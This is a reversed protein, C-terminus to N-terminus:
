NLAQLREVISGVLKDYREELIEEYAERRVCDRVRDLSPIGGLIGSFNDIQDLYSDIPSDSIARNAEDSIYILNLSSNLVHSRNSRINSTSEGINTFSGLPIIHHKHLKLNGDSVDWANLSRYSGAVPVFDPIGKSLIFQLLSSQVSKPESETVDDKRTLIAKTAYGDYNLINARLAIYVDNRSIDDCSIFEKVRVRIDDICRDNQSKSYEGSFLSLWYWQELRDVKRDDNWCDDQSFFFAIAVVILNYSVNRAEVIGCRLQLFALARIISTVALEYNESIDDTSLQLVKERKIMSVSPEQGYKKVYVILSLVNIFWEKLQSSPENDVFIGM